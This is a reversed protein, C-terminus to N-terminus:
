LNFNALTLCRLPQGLLTGEQRRLAIIPRNQRWIYLIDDRIYDRNLHTRRDCMLWEGQCSLIGTCSVSHTRCITCLSGSQSRSSGITKFNYERWSQLFVNVQSSSKSFCSFARGPLQVLCPWSLAEIVLLFSGQKDLVIPGLIVWGEVMVQYLRQVM